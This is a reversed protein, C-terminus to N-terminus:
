RTHLLQEQHESVLDADSNLACNVMGHLAGFLYHLNARSSYTSCCARGEATTPNMDVRLTDAALDHLLLLRTPWIKSVFGRDDLQWACCDPNARHTSDHGQCLRRAASQDAPAGGPWMHESTVPM